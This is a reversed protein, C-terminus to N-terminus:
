TWMLAAECRTSSAGIRRERSSGSSAIGPSATTDGTRAHVELTSSIWSETPCLMTLSPARPDSGSGELYSLLRPM